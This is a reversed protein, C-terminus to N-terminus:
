AKREQLVTACRQGQSLALAVALDLRPELLVAALSTCTSKKKLFFPFVMKKLAIGQATPTRTHTHTNANLVCDCECM